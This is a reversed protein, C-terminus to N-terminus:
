FKFEFSAKIYRGPQTYATINSTTASKNRVDQYNYYTNDFLNYIGLSLSFTESPTYTSKLNTVSYADPIFDTEGKKARAKGVFKNSFQTSWKKDNSRFKFGISTEFPSITKLPENTTNNTGEQIVM